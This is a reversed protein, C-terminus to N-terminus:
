FKKGLNNNNVIDSTWDRTNEYIWNMERNNIWSFRRDGRLREVSSVMKRIITKIERISLLSFFFFFFLFAFRRHSRRINSRTTAGFVDGTSMRPSPSSSFSFFFPSIAQGVLAGTTTEFSFRAVCVKRKRAFISPIDMRTPNFAVRM